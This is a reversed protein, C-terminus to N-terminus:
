QPLFEPQPQKHHLGAPAGHPVSTPKRKERLPPDYPQTKKARPSLPAYPQMEVEPPHRHGRNLGKNQLHKPLNLEALNFGKELLCRFLGRFELGCSLHATWHHTSLM